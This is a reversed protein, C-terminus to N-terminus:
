PAVGAYDAEHDPGIDPSWGALVQSPPVGEDGWISEGIHITQRWEVAWIEFQDLEPRFDSPAIATVTAPEVPMAWRQGTVHLALASARKVIERKPTPHRFSILVMAEFHAIAALQGTGPDDTPELEVLDVLCAPTEIDLRSQAADYVEVRRFAPFAARISGTIADFLADINIATDPQPM